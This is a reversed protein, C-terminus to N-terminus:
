ILDSIVYNFSPAFHAIKLYGNFDLFVRNQVMAKYTWAVSFWIGCITVHYIRLWNFDFADWALEPCFVLDNFGLIVRKKNEPNQYSKPVDMKSNVDEITWPPGTKAVHSSSNVSGNEAIRKLMFKM